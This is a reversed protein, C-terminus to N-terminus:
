NNRLSFLSLRGELVDEVGGDVLFDLKWPNTHM